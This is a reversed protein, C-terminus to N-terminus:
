ERWFVSPAEKNRGWLGHNGLLQKQLVKLHTFQKPSAESSREGFTVLRSLNYQM